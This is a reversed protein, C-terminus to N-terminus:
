SNTKRPKYFKQNELGKPMFGKEHKFDAQWKYSEQYGLNKMLDTVANRLHLPVQADPNKKVAKSAAGLADNVDRSKKATAMAITAQALILRAEPLGIREVAQFASTALTLAYPAAMGIDESAFIVIRRAIFIPDEGSELMRILYFLAADPDSGRMSKIFASITNYHQEGTKDYKLAVQQLAEEVKAKTIVKTSLQAATELGNLAIRADGGSMQALLEKAEPKLQKGPLQKIARQIIKEIATKPLPQLTIVRTRSLLPSIVEFSPNETTAGVLTLTGDEVFPLLYDQQAKNFRHIEDIFLLTKQGLVNLDKAEEVVKKIDAKGSTVASVEKFNYGSKIAVMRALTTKGVGPPGWLIMSSPSSGSMIKNILTGKGVISDQGVFDKLATPRQRDALPTNKTGFVDSM